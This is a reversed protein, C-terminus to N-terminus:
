VIKQAKMMNRVMNEAKEGKSCAHIKVNCDAVPRNGVEMTYCIDVFIEDEKIDIDLGTTWVGFVLRGFPTDYCTVTRKDKEFFLHGKMDGNKMIEVIRGDTIKIRSKGAKKDRQTNEEYIFYHKGNKYFYDAPAVVEVADQGDNEQIGDRLNESQIGTISLLIDKTM